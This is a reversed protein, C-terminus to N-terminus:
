PLLEHLDHGGLFIQVLFERVAGLLAIEVLALILACAIIFLWNAFTHRPTFRKGLTLLNLNVCCTLILFAVVVILPSVVGLYPYVFFFAAGLIFTLGLHLVVVSPRDFIKQQHTADRRLAFLLPAVISGAGTGTLFGTIYRITNTTPRLGIYSTVGDIAMPVIFFSLVIIYAAPPLEAPKPGSRAYVLFVALIAFFFGLYIGTDRSCVSFVLGGAEFSRSPIQHCFGHGFFRLFEQM